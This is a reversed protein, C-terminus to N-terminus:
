RKTAKPINTDINVPKTIKIDTDSTITFRGSAEIINKAIEAPRTYMDYSAHLNASVM